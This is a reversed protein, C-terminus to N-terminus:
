INLKGESRWKEALWKSWQGPEWQKEDSMIFEWQCAIEDPSKRPPLKLSRIKIYPNILYRYMTEQELVHCRAEIEEPVRKEMYELTRCKRITMVVHNPNKIDFEGAPFLADARNNDLPLQIAKLSDVVTNLQINALKAYRPNIREAMRCWAVLEGEDAEQTGFKAQIHRYWAGTLDLWAYEYERLLKILFSKSLDDLRLNPKYPGSYDNLEAM